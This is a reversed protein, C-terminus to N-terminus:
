LAFMFRQDLFRTYVQSQGNLLRHSKFIGSSPQGVKGKMLICLLRGYASTTLRLERNLAYYKTTLRLERNLAYYKTTLRLERNLAYYKNLAYRNAQDSAARSNDGCEPRASRFLRRERISATVIPQAFGNVM